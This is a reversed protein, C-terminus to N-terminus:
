VAREFDEVDGGGVEGLEAGEVGDVEGACFGHDEVDVACGGGHVAVPLLFVGGESIEGVAGEPVEDVGGGDGVLALEVTGDEGGVGEEVLAFEDM